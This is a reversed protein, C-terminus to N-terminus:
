YKKFVIKTLKVTNVSRSTSKIRYQICKVTQNNFLCKKCHEFALSKKTVIKNNGKAKKEESLTNDINIQQYAYVKPSLAVFETMYGKGIEDKMKGIVKKNMSANQKFVDPLIMNKDYGSTDFWEKLDDKTDDFFDDTQISLIFSDTGMYLLHSRSGFKPKIYDYCFSYM